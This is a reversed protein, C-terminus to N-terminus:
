LLFVWTHLRGVLCCAPTSGSLQIPTQIRNIVDKLDWYLMTGGTKTSVGRPFENLVFTGMQAATRLSSRSGGPLRAAERGQAPKRSSLDAYEHDTKLSTEEEGDVLKIYVQLEPLFQPAEPFRLYIQM